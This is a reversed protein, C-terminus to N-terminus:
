VLKREFKNVLATLREGRIINFNNTIFNKLNKTNIFYIYNKKKYGIIKEMFIKVILNYRKNILYNYNHIIHQKLIKLIVNSEIM